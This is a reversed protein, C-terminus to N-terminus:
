TLFLTDIVRSSTLVYFAQVVPNLYFCFNPLIFINFKYKFNPLKKNWDLLSNENFCNNRSYQFM